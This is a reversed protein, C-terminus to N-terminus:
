AIPCSFPIRSELWDFAVLHLQCSVLYFGPKRGVQPNLEQFNSLMSHRSTVIVFSKLHFVWILLIQVLAFLSIPNKLRVKIEQGM